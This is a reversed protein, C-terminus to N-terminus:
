PKEQNDPARLSFDVAGLQPNLKVESYELNMQYNEQTEARVRLPRWQGEIKQYDDFFIALRRQGEPDFIEEKILRFHIRELWLKKYLIARSDQLLFLYLIYVSKDKELASILAPDLYVGGSAGLLELLDSLKLLAHGEGFFPFSEIGETLTRDERPLYIQVEEGRTLLDFVPRGLLDLGQLRLQDPRRFLLIGYFAGKGSPMKAEVRLLAKLTTLDQYRRDMLELLEELSADGAPGVEVVPASVRKTSCGSLSLILLTCGLGFAATRARGRDLLKIM